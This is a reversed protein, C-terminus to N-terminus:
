NGAEQITVTLGPTASERTISAAISVVQRDDAWALGNLADLAVKVYNDLDGQHVARRNCERVIVTVRVPGEFPSGTYTERFKWGITEEYAVTESPTYVHGNRAFRPRGKPVPEGPVEVWIETM